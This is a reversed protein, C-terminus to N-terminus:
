KTLATYVGDWNAPPPSRRLDAIRAEYLEYLGQLIEPAQNRCSNLNELAQAWDQRRYAAIMADQARELSAFAETDRVAEDGLLFYM